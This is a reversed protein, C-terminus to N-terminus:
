LFLIPPEILKDALNEYLEPDVEKMIALLRYCRAYFPTHKTPNFKASFFIGYDEVEPRGKVLKIDRDVYLQKVGLKMIRCFVAYADAQM